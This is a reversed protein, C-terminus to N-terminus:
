WLPRYTAMAFVDCIVFHPQDQPRIVDGITARV